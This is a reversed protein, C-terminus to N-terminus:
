QTPVAAEVKSSTAPLKNEQRNGGCREFHPARLPRSSDLRNQTHGSFSGGRGDEVSLYKNQSDKRLVAIYLELPVVM